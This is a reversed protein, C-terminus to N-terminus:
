NSRKKSALASIRVFIKNTKQDIQHCWFFMEFNVSRSQPDSLCWSMKLFAKFLVYGYSLLREVTKILKTLFKPRSWSQMSNLSLPFMVNNSQFSQRNYIGLVIFVIHVFHPKASCYFSLDLNNEKGIPTKQTFTCEFNVQFM